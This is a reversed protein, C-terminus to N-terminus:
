PGTGATTPARRRCRRGVAGVDAVRGLVQEVDDRQLAVARLREDDALVEAGDLVADALGHGLVADEGVPQQPELVVVRGLPRRLRHGGDGGVVQRRDGPQPGAGVDLLLALVAGAGVLLELAAPRRQELVQRAASSARRSPPRAPAVLQQRLRRGQQQRGGQVVGDALSRRGLMGPVVSRGLQDSGSGTGTSSRGPV